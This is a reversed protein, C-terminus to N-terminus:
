IFKPKRTKTPVPLFGALLPKNSLNPLIHSVYDFVLKGSGIYGDGGVEWEMDHLRKHGNVHFNRIASHGGGESM